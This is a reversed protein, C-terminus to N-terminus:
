EKLLEDCLSKIFEKLSQEEQEINDVKYYDNWLLWSQVALMIIVNIFWVTEARGIRYPFKVYGLQQNFNDVNKFSEKYYATIPPKVGSVVAGVPNLFSKLKM